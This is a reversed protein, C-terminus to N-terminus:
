QCREGWSRLAVFLLDQVLSPAMTFM